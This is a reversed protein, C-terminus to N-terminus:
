STLIVVHLWKTAVFVIITTSHMKCCESYDYYKEKPQLMGKRRRMERNSFVDAAVCNCCTFFLVWKIQLMYRSCCKPGTIEYMEMLGRSSCWKLWNAPLGQSTHRVQRFYSKTMNSWQAHSLSFKTLCKSKKLLIRYDTTILHLNQNQWKGLIVLRSLESIKSPKHHMVSSNISITCYHLSDRNCCLTWPAVCHELQLKLIATKIYIKTAVTWRDGRKEGNSCCPRNNITHM